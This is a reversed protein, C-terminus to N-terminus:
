QMMSLNTIADLIPLIIHINTSYNSNIYFSYVFMAMMICDYRKIDCLPVNWCVCKSCNEHLSGVSIKNACDDDTQCEPHQGDPCQDQSKPHLELSSINRATSLITIMVLSTYLLIGYFNM